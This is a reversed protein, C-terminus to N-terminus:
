KQRYFKKILGAIYYIQKKTLEPYMPLSLIEKATKEAIPFDGLKYNLFQYAKQLHIPIPYHILALVGEKELFDRLKDRNKCRIVYYQFNTTNLSSESPTIVIGKLLSNYMAAIKRRKKIWNDLRKLKVNLIAGQIEEMRYNYGVFRHKHKTSQGHDRLAKMKLYLNKNNTVAAGAEGASGLVKGPYFSFCGIEGFTGLHKGGYFVGHAQCADEILFLNYKKAIKKIKKIEAPLGYLHVPLICRTKKNIAKEIEKVNISYDKPNIDVFIPKAGCYSIAEATAFFTNPQTIVEDGEKIGVARLALHLASTGSNVGLCYRVGCYRAFEKEFREVKEGLVYSGSILVEKLAKDIEKKISQYQRKLNIFPIKM